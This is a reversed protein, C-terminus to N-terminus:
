GNRNDKCDKIIVNKVIQFNENLLELYEQTYVRLVRDGLVYSGYPIIKSKNAFVWKQYADVNTEPWGKSATWWNVDSHDTQNLM